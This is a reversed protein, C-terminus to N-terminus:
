RRASPSRSTPTSAGAAPACSRARSALRRSLRRPPPPRRSEGSPTSASSGATTASSSSSPPTVSGWRMWRTWCRASRRALASSSVARAPHYVTSSWATCRVQADMYSTAAYYARRLTVATTDPMDNAIRQSLNLAAIDAYQRLEGWNSWAIDPADSPWYSDPAATVNQVLYPALYQSPFVFPLHPKFMGVGLFFPKDATTANTMHEIAHAAIQAEPFQAEPVGDYALWSAAYTENWPYTNLAPPM